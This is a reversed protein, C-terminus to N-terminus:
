HTTLWAAADSAHSTRGADRFGRLASEALAKAEGSAPDKDGLIQALEFRAQALMFASRKGETDALLTRLVVQAEDPEGLVRLMGAWSLQHSWRAETGDGLVPSSLAASREMAAEAAKRDGSRAEITARILFFESLRPHEEGVAAVAREHAQELEERAKDLEGLESLWQAVHLGGVAVFLPQVGHAERIAAAERTMAIAQAYKGHEAELSALDSLPSAYLPHEKGVTKEVIELSTRLAKEGEVADGVELLAMSLTHYGVAVEPHLHGVEGEFTDIYARLTGVAEANHGMSMRISALNYAADAWRRPTAERDRLRLAEEAFREAAEYDGASYEVSARNLQLASRFPDGLNAAEGAAEARRALRRAEDHQQMLVGRVYVSQALASATIRHFRSATALLEAEEFKASAEEVEGSFDLLEALARRTEAQLPRHGLQTAKTDLARALALGAAYEGAAQHGEMRALDLRIEAVKERLAAPVPPPAESLLAVEDGCDRQLSEVLGTARSIDQADVEDFSELAVDLALRREALCRESLAVFADQGGRSRAECTSRATTTWADVFADVDALLGDSAGAALPSGSVTFARAIRVRREPNWVEAIPRGEADCGDANTGSQASSWMGVGLLAAPVGVVALQRWRRAGRRELAALLSGMSPYRDARRRSLGRRLAVRVHRPVTVASPFEIADSSVVNTALEALTQGRFPREGYLAEYVAVCYAFQDTAADAIEHAYLEPAMYAPTGVLAGTRTLSVEASLVEEDDFSLSAEGSNSLIQHGTSVVGDEWRALGFDTVRV